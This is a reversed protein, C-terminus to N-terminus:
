FAVLAHLLLLLAVLSLLIKIQFQQGSIKHAKQHLAENYEERKEASMALSQSIDRMAACLEDLASASKLVKLEASQLSERAKEAAILVSAQTSSLRSNLANITADLRRAANADAEQMATQIADRGEQFTTSFQHQIDTLTQQQSSSLSITGSTSRKLLRELADELEALKESIRWFEQDQNNAM